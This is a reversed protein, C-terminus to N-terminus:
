RGIEKYQKRCEACRNNADPESECECQPILEVIPANRIEDTTIRGSVVAMAQSVDDGTM